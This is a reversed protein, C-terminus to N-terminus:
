NGGLYKYVVSFDKGAFREDEAVTEYVEQAKDGLVLTANAEQAAILALGLDKKMLAVGFGGSYDREAPAGEVVGAVPNNVESPWCKGTSANILNGITKPELGLKIGLNMAEATGINNIALLYNNALKGALGAGQEGCYLVRKGMMHLIAEIRSVLAPPAGLMFTLTGAKAGIVGGSMPADVFKGQQITHIANAVERSSGPDITSCDIFLRERHLNEDSLPPRIIAGIVNKVHAPEPLVTIVTESNEAAEGVVDAVKVAAGTGSSQAEEVFRTSAATNLDHVILTDSSPLKAQLNKAM